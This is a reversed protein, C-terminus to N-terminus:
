ILVPKNSLKDETTESVDDIRKRSYRRPWLYREETNTLKVM